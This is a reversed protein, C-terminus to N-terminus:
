WGQAGCTGAFTSIIGNPTVMRVCMNHADAIYLNGSPDLALGTEASLSANVAQGGDGSYGAVGNGAVTSIIGTASVRRIRFDGVDSIYLNGSADIALARPSTLGAIAASGGDGSFTGSGNGAITAIAGASGQSLAPWANLLLCMVPAFLRSIRKAARLKSSMGIGKM